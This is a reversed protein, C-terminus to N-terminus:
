VCYVTQFRWFYAVLPRWYLFEIRFDENIRFGCSIIVLATKTSSCDNFSGDLNDSARVITNM